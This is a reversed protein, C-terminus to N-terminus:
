RGHLVKKKLENSRKLNLDETFSLTSVQPSNVRIPPSSLIEGDILSNNYWRIHTSPTDNYSSTVVSSNHEIAAPKLHCNKEYISSTRKRRKEKRLQLMSKGNVFSAIIGVERQLELRRKVNEQIDTNKTIGIVTRSIVDDQKENDNVNNMSSRSMDFVDLKFNIFTSLKTINKPLFIDEREEQSQIALKASQDRYYLATCNCECVDCTYNLDDDFMPRAYSKKNCYEKCIKMCKLCGVGDLRSTCNLRNCM